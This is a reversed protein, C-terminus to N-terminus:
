ATGNKKRRGPRDRAEAGSRLRALEAEREALLQRLDVTQQEATNARQEALSIQQQATSVRQEAANLQHTLRENERALRDVQRQLEEPLPLLEGRYWYRVWGDVIALELDLEPIAYRENENPKVSLYRKDNHRYLTLDQTEPYFILYYLVKLEREYKKFSDDYDKRKSGKSVYELVWFPGCPELPLNYSTDARIRELTLVVMNDPVVQGPRRRRPRPWQVLMENFVHVDRRKLRLLALCALTIARQMAQASAEMFHEPPLGRLYEQAYQEYRLAILHRPLTSM